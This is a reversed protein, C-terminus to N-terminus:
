PYLLLISPPITIRGKGRKALSDEVRDVKVAMGLGFHCRQDSSSAYAERQLRGWTATSERSTVFVKAGIADAPSKPGGLLRLTIWRNSNKVVNGCCFHADFRIQQSHRRYSRNNFLDRVGRRTGICCSGPGSGTAAPVEQFKSGDLNARLLRGSRGPKGWDQL